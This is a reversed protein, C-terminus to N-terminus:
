PQEKKDKLNIVITRLRTLKKIADRQKEDKVKMKMIELDGIVDFLEKQVFSLNIMDDKAILETNKPRPASFQTSNKTKSSYNIEKKVDGQDKKNKNDNQAEVTEIFEEEFGFLGVGKKFTGPKSNQNPKNKDANRNKTDSVKKPTKPKPKRGPTNIEINSQTIEGRLIRGILTRKEVAAFALNLPDELPPYKLLRQLCMSMDNNELQNQRVFIVMSQCIYDVLELGKNESIKNDHLIFTWLRIVDEIHFERLFLMKLWRILFWKDLKLTELHFYLEFDVLKLKNEIIDVSKTTVPLKVNKHESSGFANKRGRGGKSRSNDFIYMQSLGEKMQSNYICYIDNEMYARDSVFDQFEIGDPLFKKEAEYNEVHLNYTIIIIAVIDSMGQRYGIEKNQIGWTMLVNLIQEKMEKKQFEERESFTREIDKEQVNKMEIEPPDQKKTMLPDDDGDDKLEQMIEEMKEREKSYNLREAKIKKIWDEQNNGLMYGLSNIWSIWVLSNDKLDNKDISQKLFEKNGEDVFLKYYLKEFSLKEEEKKVINEEKPIEENKKDQEIPKPDEPQTSNEEVELNEGLIQNNEM